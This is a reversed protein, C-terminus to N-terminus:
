TTMAGHSLPAVKLILALGTAKTDPDALRVPALSVCPM